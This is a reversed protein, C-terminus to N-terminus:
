DRMLEFGFFGGWVWFAGPLFVWFDLRGLGRPSLFFFGLKLGDELICFVKLRMVSAFTHNECFFVGRKELRM